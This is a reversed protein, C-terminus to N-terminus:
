CGTPWQLLLVSHMPAPPTHFIISLYYLSHLIRVSQSYRKHQLWHCFYQFTQLPTTFQESTVKFSSKPQLTSSAPNFPFISSALPTTLYQQFSTYCLPCHCLHCLLWPSQLPMFISNRHSWLWNSSIYSIPALSTFIFTNKAEIVLHYYNSNVSRKSNTFCCALCKAIM